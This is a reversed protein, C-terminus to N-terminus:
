VLMWGVLRLLRSGECHCVDEFGDGFKEGAAFIALKGACHLEGVWVMHVCIGAEDFDGREGDDFEELGLTALRTWRGQGGDVLGDIM